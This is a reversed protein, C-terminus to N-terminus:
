TKGRESALKMLLAAIETAAGDNALSVMKQRMKIRRSTDRIIELILSSLMGQLNKDELMIAAGRGSLYDANIKQYRWAHPYPILIAPVGFHPYEGISSAGARSVVLDAISLAAGMEDHLYPFACYHPRLEDPLTEPLNKFQDWTRTGTLHVIQMERLLEPLARALAQNISLAGLSGGTVLLTPLSKTFGFVRYSETQLNEELFM